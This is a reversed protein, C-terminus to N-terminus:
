DATLDISGFFAHTSTSVVSNLLLNGCPFLPSLDTEPLLIPLLEVLNLDCEDGDDFVVHWILEADTSVDHDTVVGRYWRRGFKM